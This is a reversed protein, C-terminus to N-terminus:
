TFRFGAQDYLDYRLSWSYYVRPYRKTNIRKKIGALSLTGRIIHLLEEKDYIGERLDGFDVM